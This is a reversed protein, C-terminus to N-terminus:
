SYKGKFRRETDYYFYQQDYLIDFTRNILVKMDEDFDLVQM